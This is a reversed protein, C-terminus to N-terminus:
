RLSSIIVTVRLGDHTRTLDGELGRPNQILNEPDYVFCLLRKCDPHKRYRAIDVLLQDGVERQGLTARTKKVELVTSETPLLFDMRASGGAYSPTWEEPRVDDVFIRLLSHMLDQVDYEDVIELTDRGSRRERLQLAVIPFRRCILEINNSNQLSGVAAPGTIFDDTVDRIRTEGAFWSKDGRHFFYSTYGSEFESFSCSSEFIGIQEITSLPLTRGTLVIPRGDMWPQLIKIELDGLTVDTKAIVDTATYLRVHYVVRGRTSGGDPDSTSDQKKLEEEVLRVAFVKVANSVTSGDNRYVDCHALWSAAGGDANWPAMVRHEVGKMYVSAVLQQERVGTIQSTDKLNRKVVVVKEEADL